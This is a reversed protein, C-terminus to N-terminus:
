GTEDQKAPPRAPAPIARIWPHEAGLTTPDGHGPYVRVDAPLDLFRRLTANMAQPDAGPIDTRGHGGPFLVDGGLILSDDESYLLIHGPDHGPMHMVLFVHGGVTVEDSEDLEGDLRAPPVPVPSDGAPREIRERVARHAFVPSGLARALAELGAIHDWHGHTVVIQHVTAGSANVADVIAEAVGPPADVVIADGSGSDSVLYANTELPGGVFRRVSLPM